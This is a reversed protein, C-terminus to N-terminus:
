AFVYQGYSAAKKRTYNAIALSMVCDDHLGSRAEYKICRSLKSFSAEFNELEFLLDKNDPISINKKSFDNILNEIITNKSQNSTVWPLLQCKIGLLSNTIGEKKCAKSFDEYFVDGIGNVEVAITSPNFRKLDKIINTIINEWSDNNWRSIHVVNSGNMVTLVTNDNNRGVDIGAVVQGTSLKLGICDTFNSFVSMAGDVFQCEYESLYIKEPLVEKAANIEDVNSYPNDRWTAKYSQYHKNDPDQGLQFLHYFFNKGRPTSALICKKGRVNLTPRFCANWDEEKIYSAEDVILLDFSYGRIADANQYSKFFIESGNILIISNEKRNYSRIVGSTQIGNLIEKFVKNAQAYTMSVYACQWNSNNIAFFLLLQKALFSKGFQRSTALIHYMRDSGTIADAIEKQKPFLKAGIFKREQKKREAM